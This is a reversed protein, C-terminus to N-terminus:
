GLYRPGTSDPRTEGKIAVGLETQLDYSSNSGHAAFWSAGRKPTKPLVPNSLAPDSTTAPTEEIVDDRQVLAM